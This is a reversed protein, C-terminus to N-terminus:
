KDKKYKKKYEKFIKNFRDSGDASTQEESINKKKEDEKNEPFDAKLIFYTGIAILLAFVQIYIKQASINNFTLATVIIFITIFYVVISILIRNIRKM